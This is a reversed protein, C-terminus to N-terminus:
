IILPAVLVVRCASCETHESHVCQLCNFKCVMELERVALLGSSPHSMQMPADMLGTFKVKEREERAQSHPFHNQPFKARQPKLHCIVGVVM